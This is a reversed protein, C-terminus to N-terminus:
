SSWKQLLKEAADKRLAVPPHSRMHFALIGPPSGDLHEIQDLFDILGEDRTVKVAYSDAAYEMQKSFIGRFLMWILFIMAGLFAPLLMIITGIIVVYSLLHSRAAAFRNCLVFGMRAIFNLPGIFALVIQTHKTDGHVLHGIEHAVVARIEQYECGQILGTTLAVTGHGFAMANPHLDSIIRVRVDSMFSQGNEAALGKLEEIISSVQSLERSSPKRTGFSLALLDDNKKSFVFLIFTLYGALYIVAFVSGFASIVAAMTINLLVALCVILILGIKSKTM